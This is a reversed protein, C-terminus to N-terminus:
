TRSARRMPNLGARMSPMATVNPCATATSRVSSAAAASTVGQAWAVRGPQHLAIAGCVCSFWLFRKM